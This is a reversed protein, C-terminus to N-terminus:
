KTRIVHSLSPRGLQEFAVLSALGKNESDVPSSILNGDLKPIHLDSLDNRNRPAKTWESKMRHCVNLFRRQILSKRAYGAGSLVHLSRRHDCLYDGIRIPMTAFYVIGKTSLLILIQYANRIITQFFLQPKADQQWTSPCPLGPFPVWVRQTVRSKKPVSDKRCM